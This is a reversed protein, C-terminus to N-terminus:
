RSSASQMWTGLYVTSAMVVQFYPVTRRQFIEGRPNCFHSYIIYYQMERLEWQTMGKTHNWVFPISGIPLDGWEM